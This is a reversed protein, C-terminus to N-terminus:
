EGIWVGFRICSNIFGGSFALPTVRCLMVRYVIKTVTTHGDYICGRETKARGQSKMVMRPDGM